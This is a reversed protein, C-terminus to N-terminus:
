AMIPSATASRSSPMRVRVTSRRGLLFGGGSGAPGSQRRGGSVPCPRDRRRAVAGPRSGSPGARASRWCWLARWRRLGARGAGGGPRRGAGGVMGARWGRPWGPRRSRGASLRGSRRPHGAPRRRDRQDRALQAVWAMLLAVAARLEKPVDDVPPLQLDAPRCLAPGARRRGPDGRGGGPRLHRGELGRLHHLAEVSTPPRHAIAQLALDPLVTRVPLDVAQARRERWAAVEQAVGAPPAGCSAPTACSGGPGTPIPLGTRAPWCPTASRRPGTAGARPTWSRRRHRRGPGPPERRRRRRLGAALRHPTPAALRHAPRGQGPWARPVGPVLSALSSSGHGLFGAAVQTDFLRTPGPGCARELVELDQEAAHAVMDGPRGPGPGPAGHRRGAPRRPGRGAPGAPGAPWAVQVLALRPWYTRERHFETDLAYRDAVLLREILSDLAAAGTVVLPEM